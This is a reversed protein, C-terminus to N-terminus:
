NNISRFVLYVKNGKDQDKGFRKKINTKVSANNNNKFLSSVIKNLDKNSRSYAAEHEGKSFM